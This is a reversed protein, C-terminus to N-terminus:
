RLDHRSSVVRRKEDVCFFVEDAPGNRFVIHRTSKTCCVDFHRLVRESTFIVTCRTSSSCSFSFRKMENDLRIGSEARLLRMVTTTGKNGNERIDLFSWVGLLKFFRERHLVVYLGLTLYPNKKERPLTGSLTPLYRRKKEREKRPPFLEHKAEEDRGLTENWRALRARFLVVLHCAGPIPSDRPTYHEIKRGLGILAWELPSHTRKVFFFFSCSVFFLRHLFSPLPSSASIVGRQIHM